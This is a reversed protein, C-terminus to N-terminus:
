CPSPDLPDLVRPSESVGKIEQLIALVLDPPLPELEPLKRSSGGKSLQYSDLATFADSSQLVNSMQVFSSNLGVEDEM